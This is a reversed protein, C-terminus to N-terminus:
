RSGATLCIRKALWAQIGDLALTQGSFNTLPLAIPMQLPHHGKRLLVLRGGGGFRRGCM